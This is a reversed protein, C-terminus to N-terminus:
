MSIVQWIIRGYPTTSVGGNEVWFSVEFIGPGREAVYLRQEEEVPTGGSIPNDLLWKYESASSPTSSSESPPDASFLELSKPAVLVRVHAIGLVGSPHGSNSPDLPVRLERPTVDGCFFPLTGRGVYGESELSPPTVVWEVVKGDTRVRGGSVGTDYRTGSEDTHARENIIRSISYYHTERRHREPSGPPYHSAPYIFSILEVYAGCRPMGEAYREWVQINLDRFQQSIANVTGPLTLHVIYDLIKASPEFM